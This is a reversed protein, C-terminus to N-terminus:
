RRARRTDRVLRAPDNCAFAPIALEAAIDRACGEAQALGRAWVLIRRATRVLHAAAVQLRAQAGAGLVGITEVQAPALYKAAVAGAAATRIATLYGNDLLIAEVLGTSASFVMM